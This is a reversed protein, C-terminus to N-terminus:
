ETPPPAVSRRVVLEVPVPDQNASRQKQSDGGDILGVIAEIARRGVEECSFHVSTLGRQAQAALDDMGTISLDKPVKLGNAEAIDWVFAASADTNCVVGTIQHKRLTKLLLAPAEETYISNVELVLPELRRQQMAQEYGLRRDLFDSRHPYTTLHLIRKHGAEHLCQVAQHMAKQNDLVIAPVEPPADKTYCTVIPLKRKALSELLQYHGLPAIFIFGDSRRDLYQMEERDTMWEPRDRTLVLLDYDHLRAAQRFGLFTTLGWFSELPTYDFVLGIIRTEIQRSQTMPQAVPVYELERVAELVKRRTEEAVQHNGDSLVRSVTMRSVGAREAVQRISSRETVTVNNIIGM